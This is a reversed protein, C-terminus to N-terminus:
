LEKKRKRGASKKEKMVNEEGEQAVNNEDSDKAEMDDAEVSGEDDSSLVVVTNAGVDMTQKERGPVSEVAAAAVDDGEGDNLSASESSVDIAHALDDGESPVTQAGVNLTPQTERDDEPYPVTLTVKIKVIYTVIHHNEEGAM